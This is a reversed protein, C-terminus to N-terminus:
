HLLNAYTQSFGHDYQSPYLNLNQSDYPHSYANRHSQGGYCRSPSRNGAENGVRVEEDEDRIISDNERERVRLSTSGVPKKERQEELESGKPGEQQKGKSKRSDDECSGGGEHFSASRSLGHSKHLFGSRSVGGRFLWSSEISKPPCGYPYIPTTSPIPAFFNDTTSQKKQSEQYCHIASALFISESYSLIIPLTEHSEDEGEVDLYTTDMNDISHILLDLNDYEEVISIADPVIPETNLLEEADEDRLYDQFKTNLEAKSLEPNLTRM